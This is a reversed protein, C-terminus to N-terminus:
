VNFYIVIYFVLWYYHADNCQIKHVQDGLDINQFLFYNAVLKLQNVLYKSISFNSEIKKIAFQDTVTHLQVEHGVQFKFKSHDRFLVDCTKFLM